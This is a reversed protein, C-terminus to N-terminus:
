NQDVLAPLSVGSTSAPKYYANYVLLLSVAFFAILILLLVNRAIV